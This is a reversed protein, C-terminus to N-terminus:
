EVKARKAEEDSTEERPRKRLADKIYGLVPKMIRTFDEVMSEYTEQLKSMVMANSEMDELFEKNRMFVRKKIFLRSDKFNRKKSPSPVELCALLIMEFCRYFQRDVMKYKMRREELWQTWFEGAVIKSKGVVVEGPKTGQASTTQLMKFVESSFGQDTLWKLDCRDRLDDFAESPDEVTVEYVNPDAHFRRFLLSYLHGGIGKGQHPPLIVFQSIRKRLTPSFPQKKLQELSADKPAKEQKVSPELFWYCYVTSFGVIENNSNYVFYIEWRDDENDIFSGAEIFLLVFIRLRMHLKLTEPDDLTSRYVTYKEGDASFSGVDEGVPKFGDALEKARREEWDSEDTATEEPLHELLKKVPDDFFVGDRELRETFSMTVLPLLTSADMKLNLQLDKYGIITEIDGYIPYTFDPNFVHSKDPGEGVEKGKGSSDSVDLNITLVENSNKIWDEAIDM